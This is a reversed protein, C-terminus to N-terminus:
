CEPLPQRPRIFLAECSATVTDGAFMEGTVMTKRGVNEELTAHLRLETNLPTPRHYRVTLSGTMGPSKGMIQAMGLFQDFIAAVYGGHVFGPPGEYGHHCTVTGWAETGDAWMNLGPSLPNSWGGIGNLEHNVEGHRGHEGSRMFAKVGFLRPGDALSRVQSEIVEAVEALHTESTNSTVLTDTLDRVAQALRRKAEWHRSYPPSIDDSAFPNFVGEQGAEPKDYM